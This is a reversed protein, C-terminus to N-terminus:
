ATPRIACAPAAPDHLRVPSTSTLWFAANLSKWTEPALGAPWAVGVSGANTALGRRPRGLGPCTFPAPAPPAPAPGPVGGGLARPSPAQLRPVARAERRHHGAHVLADGEVAAAEVLGANAGFLDAVEGVDGAQRERGLAVEAVVVREAQEG